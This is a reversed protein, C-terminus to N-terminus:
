KPQEAAGTPNALGVLREPPIAAAQVVNAASQALENLVDLIVRRELLLNTQTNLVALIDAQGAQFQDLIEKLEAAPAVATGKAALGRAREYRDIATQAELAARVKLQEYTLTQQNMEARRQRALPGGNNWVPIDMQLRFGLYSTLDSATEYIPGAQLDPVQSARALKYNAQAVQVGARAAMVDPRGEVLEAALDAGTSLPQDLTGGAPLWHYDTLRESLTLPATVPLNLQQRLALLAARFTAEALDQQRQAQRSAIRAASLEAVKALNARYRREVIQHLRKNLEANDAALDYLEKQYLVTFYLRMSQAMNLLEAQYINWQIQTLAALASRTRFRRQHAMQFRQMVWVYYNSNGTTTTGAPGPIFPHGNPFFQAQVFPNWIPTRAVGVVARGVDEQGRMTVLDPNQLLGTALAKSFTLSLAGGAPPEGPSPEPASEPPPLLEPAQQPSAQSKKADAVMYSATALGSPSDQPKPGLDGAFDADIAALAQVGRGATNQCGATLLAAGLCLVGFRQCAGRLGLAFNWAPYSLVRMM